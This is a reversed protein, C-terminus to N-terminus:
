HTTPMALSKCSPLGSKLHLWGALWGDTWGYGCLSLFCCLNVYVKMRTLMKTLIQLKYKIVLYVYALLLVSLRVSLRAYTCGDDMWGDLLSSSLGFSGFMKNIQLIWDMRTTSVAVMYSTSTLSHYITISQGYRRDTQIVLQSVYWGVQGSAAITAATLM